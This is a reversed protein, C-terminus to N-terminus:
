EQLECLHLHPKGMHTYQTTITSKSTVNQAVYCTSLPSAHFNSFALRVVMAIEDLMTNM